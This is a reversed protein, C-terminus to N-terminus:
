KRDAQLAVSVINSILDNLAAHAHERDSDKRLATNIKLLRGFVQMEKVDKAIFIRDAITQFAQQTAALYEKRGDDQGIDNLATRTMLVVACKTIASLLERFEEKRRDKLWQERQASRTFYQTALIGALPGIAGWIALVITLKQM